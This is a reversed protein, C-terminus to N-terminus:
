CFNMTEELKPLLLEIARKNDIVLVKGLMEIAEAEREQKRFLYALKILEDKAQLFDNDM